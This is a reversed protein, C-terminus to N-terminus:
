EKEKDCSPPVLEQWAIIADVPIWGSNDGWFRGRVFQGSEYEEDGFYLWVKSKGKPLDGDAIYHWENAKNYGYEAGNQFDMFDEAFECRLCFDMPQKSMDINHKKIVYEEAQKEFM